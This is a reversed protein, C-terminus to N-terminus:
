KKKIGKAHELARFCALHDRQLAEWEAKAVNAKEQKEKLYEELQPVLRALIVIRCKELQDDSVGTATAAVPLTQLYFSIGRFVFTGRLYFGWLPKFVKIHADKTLDLKWWSGEHTDTKIWPM